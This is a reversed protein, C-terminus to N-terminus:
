RTEPVLLTAQDPCLWRHLDVLHEYGGVRVGLDLLVIDGDNLGDDQLLRRELRAGVEGQLYAAVPAVKDDQRVAFEEKIVLVADGQRLDLRNIDQATGTINM